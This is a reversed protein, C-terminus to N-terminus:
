LCVEAILYKATPLYDMFVSWHLPTWDKDDQVNVDAGANVLLKVIM